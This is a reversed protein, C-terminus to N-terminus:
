ATIPCPAGMPGGPMAGPTPAVVGAAGPEPVQGSAEQPLMGPTSMGTREELPKGSRLAAIGIMLDADPEFWESHLHSRAFRCHFKYELKWSGSVTALLELKFPSWAM